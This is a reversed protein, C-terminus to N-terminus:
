HAQIFKMFLFLYMQIYVQAMNYVTVPESKDEDEDPPIVLAKTIGGLFSSFGARVKSTAAEANEQQFCM